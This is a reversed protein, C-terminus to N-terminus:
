KRELKECYKKKRLRIEDMNEVRYKNVKSKIKDQNLEYYQKKYTKIEEKNDKVWEIYTRGPIVKNVCEISEIYFGERSHLEDKNNCPYNELLIIEFNNSELIKYSTIYRQKGVLYSKYDGRHLALRRALTPECTSGIYVLCSTKCIIRYIKGLLYNVM